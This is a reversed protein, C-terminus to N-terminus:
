NLFLKFGVLEQNEQTLETVGVVCDIALTRAVNGMCDGGSHGCCKGQYRKYESVTTFQIATIKYLINPSCSGLPSHLGTSHKSTGLKGRTESAGGERLSLVSKVCM